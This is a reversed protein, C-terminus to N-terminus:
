KRSLVERVYRDWARLVKDKEMGSYWSVFDVQQKSIVKDEEPNIDLAEMVALKVWSTRYDHAPSYKKLINLAMEENSPKSDTLDCQGNSELLVAVNQHTSINRTAGKIGDHNEGPAVVTYSLGPIVRLKYISSLSPVSGHHKILLSAAAEQDACLVKNVLATKFELAYPDIRDDPMDVVYFKHDEISLLLATRM